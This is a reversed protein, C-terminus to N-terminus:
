PSATGATRARRPRARPERRPAAPGKEPPETLELVQGCVAVAAQELLATGAEVPRPSGLSAGLALVFEDFVRVAVRAHGPRKQLARAMLELLLPLIPRLRAALRGVGEEPSVPPGGDAFAQVVAQVAADAAAFFLDEKSAFLRYFSGKALDAALCLEDVSVDGYGRASFAQVAVRLLRERPGTTRKDARQRLVEDWM